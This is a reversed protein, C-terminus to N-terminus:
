PAPQIPGADDPAADLAILFDNVNVADNVKDAWRDFAHVAEAHTFAPVQVVSEGEGQRVGEGSAPAALFSTLLYTDGGDPDPNPYKSVQKSAEGKEEGVMLGAFPNPPLTRTDSNTFTFSLTKNLDDGEACGPYWCEAPAGTQGRVMTPYAM